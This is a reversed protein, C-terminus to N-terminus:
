KLYMETLLERGTRTKFYKDKVKIIQVTTMEDEFINVLFDAEVLIQFDIADIQSYSHHHGILHLIRGEIHPALDQDQLLERAVDPGLLEQYHGATSQYHQEAKKIGVDHLIAAITIILMQESQVGELSAITKAFGFVKLAHNIRRVDNGFYNIMKKIINEVIVAMTVFEKLPHYYTIGRKIM